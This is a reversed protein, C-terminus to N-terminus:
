QGMAVVDVGRERHDRALRRLDTREAFVEDVVHRLLQVEDLIWREGGVTEHLKRLFGSETDLDIRSFDLLLFDQGGKLSIGVDMFRKTIRAEAMAKMVAAWAASM